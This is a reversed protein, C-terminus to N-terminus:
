HGTLRDLIKLIHNLTDQDVSGLKRIFRRKDLSRIQFILAISTLNLGNLENPQIVLTAPFRKASLVSTLPVVVVMPLTQIFTDDQIIIAPREGSQEHGNASPLRIQWVEGKHLDNGKRQL